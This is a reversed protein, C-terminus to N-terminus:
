FLGSDETWELLKRFAQGRHSVCAKEEPTLEAFTRNLSPFFFLPDYGFGGNGRPVKLMRGPATGRFTAVTQGDKALAIACVFRAGRESEPVGALMELLKTNNEADTANPHNPTSAYRASYIGPAGDLYEVELGSDDALVFEQPAYQSYHKAKKEANGEFTPADEVVEPIAKFDPVGAIQIGMLSAAAAFDRLKGQNSTAVLLRKMDTIRIDFAPPM